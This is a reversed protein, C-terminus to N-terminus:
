QRTDAGWMLKEHLTSFYRRNKQKVIRVVYPAKRVTLRVGEAMRESRGDIAVLFNHSRSEVELVIESTDNIVIPRINLSHPAM